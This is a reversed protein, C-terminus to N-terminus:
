LWKMRVAGDHTKNFFFFFVPLPQLEAQVHSSPEANAVMDELAKAM